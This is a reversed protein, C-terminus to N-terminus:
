RQRRWRPQPGSPRPSSDSTPLQTTSNTKTGSEPRTPSLASRPIMIRGGPVFQVAPIRGAAVYRYTTALSIGAARAYSAPSLHTEDKPLEDPASM